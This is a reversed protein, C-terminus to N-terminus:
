RTEKWVGNEKQAGCALCRKVDQRGEIPGTRWHQCSEKLAREEEEAEAKATAPRVVYQDILHVVQANRSRNESRAWADLAVLRDAPLRLTITRLDASSTM